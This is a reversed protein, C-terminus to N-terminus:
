KLTLRTTTSATKLGPRSASVTVTYRGARLGKISCSSKTTTCTRGGVKVVFRTAKAGLPVTSWRITAGSKTRKMTIDRTPCLTKTSPKPISVTIDQTQSAGLSDTALVRFTFTSRTPDLARKPHLTFYTIGSHTNRKLTFLETDGTDGSLEFSSKDNESDSIDAYIYLDRGSCRHGYVGGTSVSPPSNIAIITVNYTITSNPVGTVGTISVTYTTDAARNTTITPSFVIGPGMSDGRHEVNTTVVGNPGTVTVQANSFNAGSRVYSWRGYVVKDPVFGPPPWAVGGDRTSVATSTDFVYLANASFTKLNADSPIDGTAVGRLEPSLIWRRHGVYTNNDGFDDIYMDIADVGSGGLALNSRSTGTYGLQTYCKATAAPTHSLAKEAASILAGAQAAAHNASNYTVSPLGAMERYWNVRQLVSNQFAVSTTGPTCSSINGTFEMPPETRDFEAKYSDIVAQRNTLDIARPVQANVQPLSTMPLATTMVACVTVFM